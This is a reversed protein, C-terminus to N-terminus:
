KIEQLQPAAEPWHQIVSEYLADVAPVEYYFVVGWFAIRVVSRDTPPETVDIKYKEIAEFITDIMTGSVQGNTLGERLLARTADFKKQAVTVNENQNESRKNM